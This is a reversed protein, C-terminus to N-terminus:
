ILMIDVFYDLNKGPIYQFIMEAYFQQNFYEVCLEKVKSFVFNMAQENQLNENLISKIIKDLIFVHENSNINWEYYQLASLAKQSIYEEGFCGFRSILILASLQIQDGVSPLNDILYEIGSDSRERTSLCNQIWQLIHGTNHDRFILKLIEPHLPINWIKNMNGLTQLAENNNKPENQRIDNNFKQMVFNIGKVFQSKEFKIKDFSKYLLFQNLINILSKLEFMMTNITESPSAMDTIVNFVICKELAEYVKANITIEIESSGPLRFISEYVEQHQEELAMLKTLSQRSYINRLKNVIALHKTPKENIQEMLTLSIKNTEDLHTVCCLFYLEGVLNEHFKDHNQLVTAHLWNIINIKQEDSSETADMSPSKLLNILLELTINSKEVLNSTTDKIINVIITTSDIRNQKILLKLLRLSQIATVCNVSSNKLALQAMKHWYATLNESDNCNLLIKISLLSEIVDTFAEMKKNTQIEQQKQTLLLLLDKFDNFTLITPDQCLIKSVIKLYVCEEDQRISEIIKQM